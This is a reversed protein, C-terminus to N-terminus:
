HRLWWCQRIWVRWSPALWGRGEGGRDGKWKRGRERGRGKSTPGKFVALPDPSCQLEGLLTPACGWHFDLKACKLRLIQCRTAGIESIKRLILQGCHIHWPWIPPCPRIPAGKSGGGTVMAPWVMGVAHLNVSVFLVVDDFYLFVNSFRPAECKLRTKGLQYGRSPVFRWLWELWHNSQCVLCWFSLCFVQLVLSIVNCTIVVLWTISYFM